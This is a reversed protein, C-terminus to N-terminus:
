RLTSYYVRLKIEQLPIASQNTVIVSNWLNPQGILVSSNKLTDAALDTAVSQIYGTITGDYIGTNTNKDKKFGIKGATLYYNKLSASDFREVFHNFEDVRYLDLTSVPDFYSVYPEVPIVLEARNIILNDITDIFNLYPTFDLKTFVGTSAQMLGRNDTPFYDTYYETIPGISSGSRDLKINNYYRTINTGATDYGTFVFDFAATDTTNHIFMRVFTSPNEMHVGTIMNNGDGPVFAFGNFFQRFEVNNSFTTTDTYAEDFLRNGLEDALRVRLLTDVRVSDLSSFDFNLSGVPEDYYPTSNKTLYISDVKIEEKLEHINIQKTGLFSEGYLYDVFMFMVLSDFVFEKESPKFGRQSIYLSSFGKSSMGGFDPTTYNGFLVRGDSSKVQTRGNIRTSNDSLIDEVLVISTNLPLEQYKAVFAGNEPNLELGIEGPDECAILFLVLVPLLSSIRGWLTTISTTILNKAIRTKKM